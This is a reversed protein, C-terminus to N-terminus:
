ATIVLRYLHSDVWDGRILKDKTITQVYTMGVHEMVRSSARNQPRCRAHVERVVGGAFLAEVLGRVAETAIGQGWLDRRVVWGLERATPNADVPGREAGFASVSGVVTGSPVVGSAGLVDHALSVATNLPAGTAVAEEIFEDTDADTNPGWDTFFCVAPDSAYVHVDDRDARTFPRLVLRETYVEM